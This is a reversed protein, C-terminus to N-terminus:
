TNFTNSNYNNPKPCIEYWARGCTCPPSLEVLRTSFFLFQTTSTLRWGGATRRGSLVSFCMYHERLHLHRGKKAERGKTKAEM